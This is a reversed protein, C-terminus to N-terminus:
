GRGNVFAEWSDKKNPNGGHDYFRRSREEFDLEIKARSGTQRDKLIRVLTGSEQREVSFLKDALNGIENAGAIDDASLAKDGAKRPHAVMHVHVDYQKAFAS